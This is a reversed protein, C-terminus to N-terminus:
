HSNDTLPYTCAHAQPCHTLTWAVRACVTSHGHRPPPPPATRTGTVTTGCVVVATLAGRTLVLSVTDCTHRRHPAALWGGTRHAQRARGESGLRYIFVSGIRTCWRGRATRHKGPHGSTTRLCTRSPWPSCSQPCISCDRRPRTRARSAAAIAAEAREGDRSATFLRSVPVRVHPLPVAQRRAESAEVALAVAAGV